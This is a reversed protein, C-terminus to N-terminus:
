QTRRPPAFPARHEPPTERASRGAEFPAAGAPLAGITPRAEVPRSDPWEPPLPTGEPVIRGPAPRFDAPNTPDSPVELVPPAGSDSAPSWHFNSINQVGPSNGRPPMEPLGALHLFLNNQLVFPREAVAYSLLGMEMAAQPELAAFTNQYAATEPWPPKSGHKGAAQGRYFAPAPKGGDRTGEATPRNYRVASRLDFVNRFLFVRDSTSEFGGVALATIMGRFLNEYILLTAGEKGTPYMPSLYIGDDEFNKLLNHHFRLNIGGIYVGDHSDSFTCYGIDWDDNNPNAFVSFEKGAEIVILAHSNLRSIDREPRGPYARKRSDSRFTWPACIGHVGCHRMVLRQTGTMRMGYTGAWITMNELRIDEAQDMVVTDHGGGRIVFGRLVVHRAGDLRLPISRFPALVLSVKRPDTEGAYNSVGGLSTHALRVYLRGTDPDYWIGPGCYVPLIDAGKGGGRPYAIKENTARLDAAHNYSQLGLGSDGLHGVFQRLNPYTKVSRFVGPAGDPSPEWASPADKQFDALGGDLIAVEGPFGCLTLPRGPEGSVSISVNEYYTGARLCLTGGPKLRTIGHSVTRLPREKSGVWSDDGKASDVYLVVGGPLPDQTPAGPYVRSMTDAAARVPNTSSFILPIGALVLLHVTNM